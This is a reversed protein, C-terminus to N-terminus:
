RGDDIFFPPWFHDEFDSFHSPGIPRVSAWDPSTYVEVLTGTRRYNRMQSMHRAWHRFM